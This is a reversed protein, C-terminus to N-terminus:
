IKVPICIEEVIDKEMSVITDDDKTLHYLLKSSNCAFYIINNDHSVPLPYCCSTDNVVDIKEICYIKNQDVLFISLCNIDFETKFNSLRGTLDLTGKINEFYTLM